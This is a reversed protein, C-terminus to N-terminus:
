PVASIVHNPNLQTSRIVRLHPYVSIDCLSVAVASSPWILSGQDEWEKPSLRWNYAFRATGCVQVFHREQQGTPVPRITHARVIPTTM